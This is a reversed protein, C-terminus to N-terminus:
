NSEPSLNTPEAIIFVDMLVALFENYTCAFFERRLLDIAEKSWGAIRATRVALDLIAGPSSNHGILPLVAHPQDHFVNLVPDTSMTM